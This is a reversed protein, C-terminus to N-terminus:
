RRRRVAGWAHKLLSYSWLLPLLPLYAKHAKAFKAYARFEGKRMAWRNSSQGGASLPPRDLRTLARPLYYVPGKEFCRLFFDYDELYRMRKDFRLRTRRVVACPTAVRNRLLMSARSVEQIKGAAPLGKEEPGGVLYDHFVLAAKPQEQFAAAMHALKEPHWTDDADLFAWHSGTAVKMGCNRAAAPGHNRDLPVFQVANGFHSKVLLGTNDTSGDDIVIIQHPLLSQSLCSEIAASLTPAANYAAIIVSFTPAISM